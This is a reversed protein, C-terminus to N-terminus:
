TWAYRRRSRFFPFFPFFRVHMTCQRGRPSQPPSPCGRSVAVWSLQVRLQDINGNRPPIVADRPANSAGEDPPFTRLVTFFPDFLPQLFEGVDKSYRDTAERDHVIVQM